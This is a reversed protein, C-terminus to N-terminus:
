EYHKEKLLEALKPSVFSESVYLPLDECYVEKQSWDEFSKSLNAVYQTAESVCDKATWSTLCLCEYDPKDNSLIKVVITHSPHNDPWVKYIRGVQLNLAM